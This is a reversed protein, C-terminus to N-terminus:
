SIGYAEKYWRVMKKYNKEVYKRKDNFVETYDGELRIPKPSRWFKQEHLLGHATDARYVEYSKDNVVIRLNIVFHRISGRETILTIDVLVGNDLISTYKLTRKRGALFIVDNVQGTM